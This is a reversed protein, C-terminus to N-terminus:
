NAQTPRPIGPRQIEYHKASSPQTTKCPPRLTKYNHRHQRKTKTTGTRSYLPLSGSPSQHNHHGSGRTTIVPITSSKLCTPGPQPHVDDSLEITFAMPNFAADSNGYYLVRAGLHKKPRITKGMTLTMLGRTTTAISRVPTVHNGEAVFETSGGCLDAHIGHILLKRNPWTNLLDKTHTIRSDPENGLCLLLFLVSRLLAHGTMAFPTLAVNTNFYRLGKVGSPSWHWFEGATECSIHCSVTHLVQSKM